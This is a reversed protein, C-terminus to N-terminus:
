AAWCNPTVLRCNTVAAVLRHRRIPRRSVSAASAAVLQQQLPSTKASRDAAPPPCLQRGYAICIAASPARRRDDELVKNVGPTLLTHRLHNAAAM